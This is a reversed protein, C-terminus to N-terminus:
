DLRLCDNEPMPCAELQIPGPKRSVLGSRSSLTHAPFQAFEDEAHNGVVTAPTRWANMSFQLHKAEINTFSGDRAPHLPRRSTGLRRLLPRGEQANMTFRNCSHVEESHRREGEANEVAKEDNRMATPSDEVAIDGFMRAAGPHNLLQAFCKGLVPQM